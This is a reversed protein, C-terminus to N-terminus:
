EKKTRYDIIEYVRSRYFGKYKPNSIIGKLTDKDYLKGNRNHYGLEFLKKSLKLFWYENTSYLEFLGLKADKIM